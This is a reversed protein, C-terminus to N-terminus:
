RSDRRRAQDIIRVCGPSGVLDDIAVEWGREHALKEGFDPGLDLWASDANFLPPAYLPRCNERSFKEM